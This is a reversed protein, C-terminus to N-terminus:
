LWGDVPLMSWLLANVRRWLGVNPEMTHREGSAESGTWEVESIGNGLVAQYSYEPLMGQEVFQAVQESLEPSDVVVGIETNTYTSRPDINFTGVFVRSRDFVVAKTHLTVIPDGVTEAFRVMGADHRLEYLEVDARLLTARHRAYGTHAAVVDNSALSNTLIRVRVGDSTLKELQKIIHRDPVLYASEILLEEDVSKLLRALRDAVVPSGKGVVKGPDDYLVEGPAWIIEDRISELASVFRSNTERKGSSIEASGESAHIEGNSQTGALASVPIALRHNWFDDFAASMERVAPGITLLDLDRFNANADIGFYEDSVNRGGVIAVANDAIFLKNHMRRNVRDLDVLYDLARLQRNSFPNFLRIEINPHQDLELLIHEDDGAHQDDLLFRVRVGRDAANVLGQTLRLGAVDSKWLYYQVDLTKDAVGALVDRFAFAEPGTDLLVFGSDDNQESIEEAFMSGAVTSEPDSYATSPRAHHHDPLTACAAMGVICVCALWLRARLAGSFVQIQHGTSTM